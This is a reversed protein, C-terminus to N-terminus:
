PAVKKTKLIDWVSSDIQVFNSNQGTPALTFM